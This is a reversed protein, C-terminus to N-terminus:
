IIDDLFCREMYEEFEENDTGKIARELKMFRDNLFFSPKERRHDQNKVRKYVREVFSLSHGLTKAITNPKCKKDYILYLIPDLVNYM